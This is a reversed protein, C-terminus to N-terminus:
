QIQINADHVVKGWRAEEGHVYTELKEPAGGVMV